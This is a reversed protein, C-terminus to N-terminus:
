AQATQIVPNDFPKPICEEIEEPTLGQALLGQRVREELPLHDLHPCPIFELREHPKLQSRLVAVYEPSADFFRPPYKFTRV